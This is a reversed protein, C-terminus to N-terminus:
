TSATPRCTPSSRPTPAPARASRPARCARARATTPGSSCSTSRAPRRPPGPRRPRRQRRAALHQGRPAVLRVRPRAGRRARVRRARRHGTPPPHAPAARAESDARERRTADSLAAGERDSAQRTAPTRRGPLDARRPPARGTSDLVAPQSFAPLLNAYNVPGWSTECRVPRRRRGPARRPCRRRATTADARPRGRRRRALGGDRGVGLAPAGLVEVGDRELSAAVLAVNAGVMLSRPSAFTATVAPSTSRSPSVRWSWARRHAPRQGAVHRPRIGHRDAEDVGVAVAPHDRGRCPPEGSAGRGPAGALGELSSRVLPSRPSRRSRSPLGSIGSPVTCATCSSGTLAVGADAASSSVTTPAVLPDSTAPARWPWPM